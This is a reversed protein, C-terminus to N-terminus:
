ENLVLETLREVVAEMTAKKAVWTQMGLAAAAAQTQKGICVARVCSFDLGVVAQAFGKVTSASTFVAYDIQGTEFEAKEDIWPSTEYITDYTPIDDICIGPVKELEETLERTGIAARPILLRTGPTCVKALERGLARGEYTEPMLDPRIGRELLAKKTGSGIVAFRAGAIKRIDCSEKLRDFFIRVGTPSTFVIWDYKEAQKLCQELPLNPQIPVTRIAPLELVEAGQARLLRSMESVLEKPRTVLIKRGALPKKEYWFFDEALRCVRGVVIIAPTEVGRRQVETELTGVSAVIRKQGATTGKQLVAAPVAPDMGAELLGRCIDGLAAIGMLFVLTGGTRVLAQFDIDYQEGKRKHGTVIHLSSCYDRHTVPIGNYAPVSLASTVGPVIEFPIGNDALLELEEGGRGFLFPDGGKLRVVQKGELAKRLLVRNIEEQAMLHNSARKGVNILEAGEPMMALVGQGVLADYVVVDAQALVERGKLTFLGPDGPGAGVLWVKGNAGNDRQQAKELIGAQNKAQERLSQALCIGLAEAEEAPGKRSGKRYQGTEEDYYLGTLELQEGDLVAHAAVPSSCGGNLERVFAREALAERRADKDECCKLFSYDEGARGQVALIGQGAAPIVEQVTFYRSIRGELGLRKLGAAALVLAGYRGEELKKLRTQLNGRVPAFSAEPFLAQLQLVRRSSSCGIPLSNDREKVGEPLILVDRPDERRSFALLPLEEPVEMPVDKLSHVSLDSRHELLARDLEKVFLGKGGVQDLTRDLIRDGTTKMTLLEVELEPHNEEIATQIMRSQIVALRSERSGICIKRKM